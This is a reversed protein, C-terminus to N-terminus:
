WPCGREFLSTQASHSFLALVKLRALEALQDSSVTRSRRTQRERAGKQALERAAASSSAEVSRKIRCFNCETSPVDPQQDARCWRPTWPVYLFYGLCPSTQLLDERRLKRRTWPTIQQLDQLQSPPKSSM